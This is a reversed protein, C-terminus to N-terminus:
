KKGEKKIYHKFYHKIKQALGKPKPENLEAFYSQPSDLIKALKRRQHWKFGCAKIQKPSLLAFERQFHRLFELRYQTAIREANWKYGCFKLYYFLGQYASWLGNQRLFQEIFDYEDCLCYVKAKSNSSSNENDTRYCYFADNILYMSKALITAIFSFGTDQYSAGATENFAIKHRALFERKFISSQNMKWASKLLATKTKISKPSKAPDVRLDFDLKKGYFRKNKIIPTHTFRSEHNNTSQSKPTHFCLIDSKVIDCNTQKAVEYLNEYMQPKTFDDSEVIGIFEGRAQAIGLNMQYGYSKKESIIVRLRSDQRAYDHLIQITGDTSNADICLIEIDKLRQNLVSDVCEKIFRASNLTPIIISIKRKNANASM